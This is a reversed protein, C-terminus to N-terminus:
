GECPLFGSSKEGDFFASIVGEALARYGTENPHLWDRPGHIPEKSAAKRFFKRTDVFKFDHKRAIGEIKHCIERSRKHIDASAVVVNGKGTWITVTPSVWQYSSLPSPIYVVAISANEFYDSLFLVSQEFMYIAQKTQEATLTMAPHQSNVPIPFEKGDILATDHHAPATKPPTGIRLEIVKNNVARKLKKVGRRIENVVNDSVSEVLFRTFLFNKLV